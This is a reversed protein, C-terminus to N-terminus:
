PIQNSKNKRADLIESFIAHNCEPCLRIVVMENIVTPEECAKCFFTSIPQPLVPTEYPATVIEQVTYERDSNATHVWRKVTQVAAGGGVAYHLLNNRDQPNKCQMLERAVSFSIESAQVATIIEDGSDLLCIHQSVYPISMGCLESIDKESMNFDTRLRAFTLAQDIHSLNQRKLNEHLKIKEALSDDAKVIICPLSALGAIKSARYRSSGAIIEVNNDVKRCILPELVGMEKISNALEQDAEQDVEMRGDFPAPKLKEIKIYEINSM